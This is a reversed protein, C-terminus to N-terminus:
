QEDSEGKTRVALLPVQGWRLRPYFAIISRGIGQRLRVRQRNEYDYDSHLLFRREKRFAELTTTITQRLGKDYDSDSDGDYDTTTITIRTTM